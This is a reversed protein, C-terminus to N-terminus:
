EYKNLNILPKISELIYMINYRVMVFLYILFQFVYTILFESFFVFSYVLVVHDSLQLFITQFIKKYSLVRPGLQQLTLKLTLCIGMCFYYKRGTNEIVTKCVCVSQYNRVIKPFQVSLTVETPRAYTMKHQPYFNQKLLKMLNDILFIIM